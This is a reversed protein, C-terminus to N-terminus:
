DKIPILIAELSAQDLRVPTLHNKKASSNFSLGNEIRFFISFISSGINMGSFPVCKKGQEEYKM